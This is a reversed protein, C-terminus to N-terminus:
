DVLYRHVYTHDIVTTTVRRVVEGRMGEGQGGWSEDWRQPRLVAEIPEILKIIAVCRLDTTDRSGTARGNFASYRYTQM